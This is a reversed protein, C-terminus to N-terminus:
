KAGCPFKSFLTTLTTALMAPDFHRRFEMRLHECIDSRRGPDRWLQLVKNKMQEINGNEVLCATFSGLLFRTGPSDYAIPIVEFFPAELATLCFSERRSCVLLFDVEQFIRERPIEGLYLIGAARMLALLDDRSDKSGRELQIQGIAIGQAGPIEKRLKTMLDIFAYIGKAKNLWGIHAIKPGGPDERMRQFPAPSLCHAPLCNPVLSVPLNTLRRLSDAEAQSVTVIQDVGRLVLRALLPRDTLFEVGHNRYIARTPFHIIKLLLLLWLGNTHDAVVIDPKLRVALKLFAFFSALSWLYGRAQPYTPLIKYVTAGLAELKPFAANTPAAFVINSSTSLLARYMDYLACAVGGKELSRDCIWLIHPARRESRAANPVANLRDKRKVRSICGLYLQAQSPL